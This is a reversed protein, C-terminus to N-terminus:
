AREFRFGRYAADVIEACEKRYNPFGGVYAMYVRKKGPVNAGVYWSNCSPATRISGQVLSAVHEVWAEQADASPEVTRYGHTNMYSICDAIWGIHHEIGLVMNALVSPSGPGTVTFLNPFGAVQLGLYTLPGNDAWFEGLSRHDRGRVDIRSLAGTMADFGTAWVIVDLEFLGQATEIGEPRVRRITGERLDVLDVNPRTFTEFYNTDLIQRKCGMPYSPTLKRVLEPDDITRAIM